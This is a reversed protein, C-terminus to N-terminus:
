SPAESLAAPQLCRVGSSATGRPDAVRRLDAVTAADMDTPNILIGGRELVLREATRPGHPVTSIVVDVGDVASRITQPDDLDAHRFGTRDDPHRGAPNTQWGADTFRQMTVSGLAGQAGVIVATKM